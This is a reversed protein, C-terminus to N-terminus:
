VHVHPELMGNTVLALILERALARQDTELLDCMTVSTTSESDSPFAFRAVRPILKHIALVPTVKSERANVWVGGL